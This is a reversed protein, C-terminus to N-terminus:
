YESDYGEEDEEEQQEEEQVEEGDESQVARGGGGGFMVGLGFQLYFGGSENFSSGEGPISGVLPYLMGVEPIIRVSTGPIRAAFGVTAGANITNTNGLEDSGSLFIADSVSLSAVFQHEGVPVGVLLPLKAQFANIGSSVSVNGQSASASLRNYGVSPAVSLILKNSRSIQFRSLFEAGYGAVTSDAGTSDFDDNLFARQYTLRAGVDSTNSVGHLVQAQAGVLFGAEGMGEGMGRVYSPAIAVQTKGKGVTDATLTNTVGVCATAQLLLLASGLRSLSFRKM